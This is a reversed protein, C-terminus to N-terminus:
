QQVVFRLMEVEDGHNIKLFYLGSPLSLDFIRSYSGDVAKASETAVMQGRADYIMWNIKDNTLGEADLRFNGKTPNPFLTAKSSWADAQLEELVNCSEVEVLVSDIGVCGDANTVEVIYLTTTDPTVSIEATEDGTNWEYSVGGSARLSATEGRCILQDEGADADQHGIQTSAQPEDPRPMRNGVNDTALVYFDYAACAEGEFLMQTATTDAVKRYAAGNESAYISFNRLGSGLDEDEGEWSIEFRNGAQIDALPHMTATPPFADITNFHENTIIPPNNDFYIGAQAYVTDGSQATTSPMIRYNVYGEGLGASDNVALFGNLPNKPNANTQPDLTRFLWFVENNRVDLGATVELIYGEEETLDIRESYAAANEPVEFDYDAFGFDGLRFSAPNVHEDLAQVIRVNQAPATALEPDNEFRIMYPLTDNVSVFQGDGYGSPGLIDNPDCPAVVALCALGTKDVPVVLGVVSKACKKSAVLCSASRSGIAAFGASWVVATGIGGTAAGAALGGKFTIISAKIIPLCTVGAKTCTLTTTAAGLATCLLGAAKSIDCGALPTPPPPGPDNSIRPQGRNNPSNPLHNGDGLSQWDYGSSSQSGLDLPQRTDATAAMSMSLLEDQIEELDDCVICDFTFDEFDVGELIGLDIFRNFNEEYFAASDAALAIEELLLANDKLTPNEMALDTLEPDHLLVQRALEVANGLVHMLDTLEYPNLTYEVGFVAYPFDRFNLSVAMVEGPPINKGMYTVYDIGEIGEIVRTLSDEQINAAEATITRMSRLNGTSTEGVLRTSRHWKFDVSVYPIDVNSENRFTFGIRNSTNGGIPDNYDQSESIRFEQKPEVVVGQSLVAESNDPNEVVLDYVGTDVQALQWRVQMLMSHYRNVVTGSTVEVGDEDRLFVRVGEQFGAGAVESTVQGQGMRNPQISRIGFSLVEARLTVENTQTITANQNNLMLYYFGSDTQPVLVEQTEGRPQNSRFDHNARGAVENSRVFVFNDAALNEPELTVIMDKGEGPNIKYYRSEMEPLTDLYDQAPQIERIRVGIPSQVAENHDRDVELIRNTANAVVHGSQDNDKLGPVTAGFTMEMSDGPLLEFIAYERNQWQTMEQTSLDTFFFRDDIRGKTPNPGENKLTYNVRSHRGPEVESPFVLATVNLNSPLMPMVRVSQFAYNNTYDPEFFNERPNLQFFYFFNGELYEPIDILISDTFRDNPALNVKQLGSSLTTSSKSPISRQATINSRFDWEEIAQEGINEVTFKLYLPEGANVESPASFDVLALDPFKGAEVAVTGYALNNVRIVENDIEQKLDSVVSLFYDGEIGKPMRLQRQVLISDGPKLEMEFHQKRGMPITDPQLPVSRSAFFHDDWFSPLSEREGINKIYYEMTFNRGSVASDPLQTIKVEFDALLRPLVNFPASVSWNNDEMGHEYVQNRRDTHIHMYYVGSLDAPLDIAKRKQIENTADLASLHVLSDLLIANNNFISSESIYIYDVWSPNAEGDGQNLVEYQLEIATQAHVSDEVEINVVVLDPPPTLAINQVGSRGINNDLDFECEEENADAHVYIYFDGSIGNPLRLKKSATYQLGSLLSDGRAFVERGLWIVSDPHFNEYTSLYIHDEWRNGYPKSAGENAVEWTVEVQQGSALPPNVVVSRTVLDPPPNLLINMEEQQQNDDLFEEWVLDEEDVVIHIYYTSDICGPLRFQVNNTYGSDVALFDDTNQWESLNYNKDPSPFRINGEPVDFGARRHYTSRLRVPTSGLYVANTDQALDEYLSLYFHDYWENEMFYLPITGGGAGGVSAGPIHVVGTTALRGRASASGDNEVEYQIFISDASFATPPVSMTKLVLNPLDPLAFTLASSSVLLNNMTDTEAMLHECFLDDFIGDAIINAARPTRMECSFNPAVIIYFDGVLRRPVEFTVTQTYSGNPNLFTQNAVSAALVADEQDLFPESSFFVADRWNASGTGAQGENHVEFSVEVTEGSVITSPVQLNKAVLDPLDRTQFNQIPSAKEGCVAAKAVVQWRYAESYAMNELAFDINVQPIDAITPLEPRNSGAEWLYLDYTAARDVGSWSFNVPIDIGSASDEPLMTTFDGLNEPSQKTVAISDSLECSAFAEYSYSYYAESEDPNLFVNSGNAGFNWTAENIPQNLQLLVSDDGCVEPAFAYIAVADWAPATSMQTTAISLKIESVPYTTKSFRATMVRAGDISVVGPTQIWQLDWTQTQPNKTWISDVAGAGRVEYISVADIPEANDFGLVLADDGSALLNPSWMNRDSTNPFNFPMGMLNGVRSRSIDSTFAQIYDVYRVNPSAITYDDRLASIGSPTAYNLKIKLPVGECTDSQTVYYFTSREETPLFTSGSAINQTLNADAYWEFNGISGSVELQQLSEGQCYDLVSSASLEPSPTPCPNEELISLDYTFCSGGSSNSVVVYYTKDASLFGTVTEGSSMFSSSSGICSGGRDQFPCDEFVFLGTYRVNSEHTITITYDGDRNPSFAIIDDEGSLYSQNGCSVNFPQTFTNGKGCTSRNSDVFPLGTVLELSEFDDPCQRPYDIRFEYDYCNGNSSVVVYYTSDKQTQLSILEHRSFRTSSAVCNPNETSIPCNDYVMIGSRQDTTNMLELQLLTDETATFRFVEEPGNIYSSSGCTEVILDYLENTKGCTTANSDYYPTQIDTIESIIDSCSPPAAIRLGYDYCGGSSGGGVVLHYTSDKYLKVEMLEQSSFSVSSEVCSGGQDLLPCGDYLRLYTRNSATPNLIEFEYDGTVEAQFTFVEEESNWYSGGGCGTTILDYLDNGKGCTTLNSDLFPLSINTISTIDDACTRPKDIRLGYDYCGGSSGGGVVLYYTSDQHLEVEMLELSSFSVSSALCSTGQHLLPCGDYLRLYTRNSATPSLIEIQYFDTETVNLVFVEEESDWYSGGGCSETILSYLDNGKGCTTLSSDLFPVNINTISTIDDPCTRPKDIRLSYDFCDAGNRTVIFYYNSDKELYAELMELSSFSAASGVCTGGRQSLPCGKYLFLGTSNSANTSLLEFQFLGSDSATFQFVEDEGNSRSGLGSCSIATTPNFANGKGCTTRATDLFPLSIQNINGLDDPCKGAQRIELTFDFCNDRNSVVLYYTSDEMLEVELFESSSFGSSHGVCSADVDTPCRDYLFIGTHNSSAETLLIQHWDTEEATFRLVLDEDDYYSSSGCTVATTSNIDNGMNCTTLSTDLYPLDNIEILGTAPTCQASLKPQLSIGLVFFLLFALCKFHKHTSFQQM